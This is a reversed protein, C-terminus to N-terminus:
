FVCYEKLAVHCELLLAEAQPTAPWLKARVLTLLFCDCYLFQINHEMGTMSHFDYNCMMRVFNYHVCVM